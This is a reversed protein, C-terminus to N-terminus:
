GPFYLIRNCHTCALMRENRRVENYAQPTLAVSCGSCSGDKVPVVALGDRSRLLKTYTQLLGAEIGGVKAKWSRRLAGLDAEIRGLERTKEEREAAFRADAERLRTTEEGVRKQAQELQYLLGLFEEELQSSREKLVEIEKLVASYEQNTKIEFLRAQKKKQDAQVEELEKEKSRHGKQLGQLEAKAADLAAQAAKVQEERAAIEPPIRRAERELRFIEADLRQLEILIDLGDWM